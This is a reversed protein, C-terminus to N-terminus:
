YEFPICGPLLLALVTFKVGEPEPRELDKFCKGIISVPQLIQFAIFNEIAWYIPM